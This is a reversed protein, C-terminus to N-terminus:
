CRDTLPSRGSNELSAAAYALCSRIQVSTLWHWTALIDEETMGYSMKELIDGVTIRTGAICPKGFRVGPDITIYEWYDIAPSMLTAM